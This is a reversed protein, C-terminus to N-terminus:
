AAYLDIKTNEIERILIPNRLSKKSVVDVKKGLLNEM